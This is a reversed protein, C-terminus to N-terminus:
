YNLASIRIWKKERERIGFLGDFKSKIECRERKEFERKSIERKV